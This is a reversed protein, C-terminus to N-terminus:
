QHGPQPIIVPLITSSTSSTVPLGLRAFQEKCTELGPIYADSCTLAFTKGDGSYCAVLGAIALSMCGTSFMV